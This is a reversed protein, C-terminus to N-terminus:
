RTRICASADPFIALWVTMRSFYAVSSSELRNQNKHDDM